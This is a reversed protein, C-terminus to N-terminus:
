AAEPRRRVHVIIAQVYQSGNLLTRSLASVTAGHKPLRRALLDLRESSEKLLAVAEYLDSVLSSETM